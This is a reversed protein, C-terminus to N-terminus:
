TLTYRGLTLRMHPIYRDCAITCGGIVEVLFGEFDVTPILRREVMAIDIFNHSAGGDILMTERQGQVVGKMRFTNFKPVGSMSAIIVKKLGADHHLPVEDGPAHLSEEEERHSMQINHIAGGEKDDTEEESDSVVKIYHIKGKGLCRHGPQWQEKCTFCLQKRRLERRTAEDLKGKGKDMQKTDRGRPIIPPRPTFKNKNAAGVLDKTGEIADQLTVPKFAKVWGRVPEILGEIYMM